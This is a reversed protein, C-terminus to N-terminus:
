QEYTMDEHIFKPLEREKLYVIEKETKGCKTCTRRIKQVRCELRKDYYSTKIMETFSHKCMKIVKGRLFSGGKEPM